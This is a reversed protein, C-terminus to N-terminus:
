EGSVGSKQAHYKKEAECAPCVSPLSPQYTVEATFTANTHRQCPKYIFHTSPEPTLREIVDAAASTLEQCACNPEIGAWLRLEKVLENAMPFTEGVKPEGEDRPRIVNGNHEECLGGVAGDEAVLCPKGCGAVLCREAPEPPSTRMWYGCERKPDHAALLQECDKLQKRLREIEDAAELRSQRIAETNWGDPNRLVHLMLDPTYLRDNTM